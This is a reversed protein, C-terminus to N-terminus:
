ERVLALISDVSARGCLNGDVMAAPSLACNGLCYVPEVAIDARADAVARLEENLREAGLSQCAEARCLRVVHRKPPERRFDHYFSVVGHVEARSLNLADAIVPIALDDIYGFRDNVAHLVPLLPGELTGVGDAIRRVLDLDLSPRPQRKDTAAM